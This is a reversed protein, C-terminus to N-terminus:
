ARSFRRGAVPSAAEDIANAEAEAQAAEMAALREPTM